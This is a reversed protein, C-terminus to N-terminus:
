IFTHQLSEYYYAGFVHVEKDATGVILIDGGLVMDRGRREYDVYMEISDPVQNCQRTLEQAYDALSVYCGSYAEDLAVTADSLAGGFYDLVSSGLEVFKCIFDALEKVYLISSYENVSCEGFGEYDHIAFEEANQMPSSKLVEGIQVNIEDIDLGLDVWIGHLIGNNYAALDAIYIRQDTM